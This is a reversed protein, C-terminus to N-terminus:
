KIALFLQIFGVCEWGEKVVIVLKGVAGLLLSGNM